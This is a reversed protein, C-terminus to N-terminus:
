VKDGSRGSRGPSVWDRLRPAGGGTALLLFCSALLLCPFRPHNRGGTGHGTAGREKGKGTQGLTEGPLFSRVFLRAREQEQEQEQRRQQAQAAREPQQEAQRLVFGDGV